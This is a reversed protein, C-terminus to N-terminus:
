ARLSEPLEASLLRFAPPLTGVVGLVLGAALAIAVVAGDVVLGFAGMSFRVSLGDLLLTGLGCALLAGAAHGILSEQVLSLVIAPRGFGLVQLTGLERARSAFAAYAINLGGLVGGLAILSAALLVLLRVPRYFADLSAYYDAEALAVLELDLRQAAFAEVDALEGRTPDLTLVVCSVTDRKTVVQLDTLATWVEANMVTGPASFRGVVTWPQGDFHLTRGVAVDSPDLDLKDALRAGVLIEHQGARPPRGEVIELSPHVLFAASTVGRVVTLRGTQEGAARTVTLAVHVEPSVYPEGLRTRIGRLSAAAVAAARLELQSREVSEESGAGLLIVNHPSASVALSQRMGTVFAAAGLVLLAVLSAGGVSLATRLPNRGLNRVAYEFPLLKV